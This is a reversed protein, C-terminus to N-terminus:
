YPTYLGQPLNPDDKDYIVGDLLNDKSILDEGDDNRGVDSM